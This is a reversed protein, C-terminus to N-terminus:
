ADTGKEKLLRELSGMLIGEPAGDVFVLKANESQFAEGYFSLFAMWDAADRLCVSDYGDPEGCACPGCPIAAVVLVVAFVDPLALYFHQLHNKGMEGLFTGTYLVAASFFKAFFVILAPYFVFTLLFPLYPMEGNEWRFDLLFLVIIGLSIGVYHRCAKIIPMLAALLVGAFFGYFGRCSSSNLFPLEIGYTSIACGLLLFFVMGFLPSVKAKNSWYVIGYFLLYCLMLVSCYWTPNNLSPNAFVWGDQVGLAQIVVGLLSPTGLYYENGSYIINYAMLLLASVVGSVAMLPLLRAARRTYFQYFTLGQAIKQIYPFMCIGSILFFLEVIYGFSFSGGYFNILGHLTQGTIGQGDQQYHHFVILITAFVKLMDLTRDRTEKM